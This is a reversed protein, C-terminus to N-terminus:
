PTQVDLCIVSAIRDPAKEPLRIVLSQGAQRFSLSKREPDALLYAKAVKGKVDVLEFEGAPWKFLHLYLMGPKTTARWEWSPIFKAHGKKDKETKSFTGLEPGFPTPGCGYIAEGNLRLWNGIQDLREINPPPIVGEGTPGVNLLYNGGKSTIDILNRLLEESSKWNQDFKNCGWHRNLTMCTEWPKASVASPIEQEPTGYDGLGNGIRSNVICDPQLSHIMQLLEASQAKSIHEPTDFWLVGIPGYQTLLERM